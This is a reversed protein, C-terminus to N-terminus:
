GVKYQALIARVADEMRKWDKLFARKYSLTISLSNDLDVFYHTCLASVTGDVPTVENGELVVGDKRHEANDCQIFTAIADDSTRAVYWDPEFALNRPFPRGTKAEQDRAYARRLEENIAYPTLGMWEAQPERLELRATPDRRQLSGEDTHGDNTVRRAMAGKIPLRDIFDISVSIEKLFDNTRPAARAGPLTPEMEPWELKLALGEGEPGIQNDFYNAPIRFTHPGLKVEVPANTYVHGNITRGQEVAESMSSTGEQEPPTTQACASASLAIALALPLCRGPSTLRM